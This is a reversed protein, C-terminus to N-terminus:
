REKGSFTGALAGGQHAFDGANRKLSITRTEGRDAVSTDWGEVRATDQTIRTADFPEEGLATILEEPGDTIGYRYVFEGDTTWIRARDSRFLWEAIPVPVNRSPKATPFTFRKGDFIFESPGGTRDVLTVYTLADLDDRQAM